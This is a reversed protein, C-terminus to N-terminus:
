ENQPRYDIPDLCSDHLVRDIKIWDTHNIGRSRPVTPSSPFACALKIWRGERAALSKVDEVGESLDQDQSFVLAVDYDGDIAHRVIDLAIRVDIGKEQGVLTTTAGGGPLAVAQNRYRLPHTFVKIGRTGMVAAKATWFHNWFPNDVASPVGTYFCTQVLTWTKAACIAAALKGVDYNPHRHGFATRAAHFLDQGDVFAFVRKSLPEARIAPDM